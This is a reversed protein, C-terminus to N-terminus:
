HCYGHRCVLVGDGVACVPTCLVIKVKLLVLSITMLLGLVVASMVWLEMYILILLSDTSITSQKLYRAKIFVGSVDMLKAM